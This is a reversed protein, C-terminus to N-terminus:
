GRRRGFIFGLILAGLAAGGIFSWPSSHVNDDVQVVFDRVKEQGRHGAERVSEAARKTTESLSQALRGRGDFLADKLDSYKDSVIDMLESKKQKAALALLELAEEIKDANLQKTRDM